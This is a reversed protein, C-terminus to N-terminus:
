NLNFNMNKNKVSLSIKVEGKLCIFIQSTEKHAHNGRNEHKKGYINFIRKVSYQNFNYIQLDGRNKQNIRIFDLQKFKKM